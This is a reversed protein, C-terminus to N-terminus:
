NRKWKSGRMVSSYIGLVFYILYIIIFFISVISIINAVIKGLHKKLFVNFKAFGQVLMIEIFILILNYCILSIKYFNEGKNGSSIVMLFITIVSFVFFKFDFPLIIDDSNRNFGYIRKTVFTYGLTCFAYSLGFSIAPYVNLMQSVLEKADKINLVEKYGELGNLVENMTNLLTEYSKADLKIILFDSVLLVTMVFASGLLVKYGDKSNDMGKIIVFSILVPILSTFNGLIVLSVAVFLGSSIFYTKLDSKKYLIVMPVFSLMNLMPFLVMAMSLFYYLFIKRDKM